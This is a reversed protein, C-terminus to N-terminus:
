WCGVSVRLAPLHGGDHLQRHHGPERRLDHRGSGPRPPDRRARWSAAARIVASLCKRWRRLAVAESPEPRQRDPGAVGSRDHHQLGVVDGASGLLSGLRQEQRLLRQRRVWQPRRSLRPQQLHLRQQLLYLHRRPLHLRRRQRSIASTDASIDYKASYHIPTSPSTSYNFFSAYVSNPDVAAVAGDWVDIMNVAFQTFGNLINLNSGLYNETSGDANLLQLLQYGAPAVDTGAAFTASQFIPGGILNGLTGSLLDYNANLPNLGAFNAMNITGGQGNWINATTSASTGGQSIPLLQAATIPNGTDDLVSINSINVNVGNPNASTVSAVVSNNFAVESNGKHSSGGQFSAATNGAAALTLSSLDYFSNGTGGSITVLASTDSTLLGGGGEHVFNLGERLAINADTEAGTIIVQGSTGSLNVTTINQWDTSLSDSFATAFLFTTSGDDTLTITQANWSGENGLALINVSGVSKAGTSSVVWNQFGVAGTPPLTVGNLTTLSSASAGAAIAFADDQWGDLEPQLETATM